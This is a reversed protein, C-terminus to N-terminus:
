WLGNYWEYVNKVIDRKPKEPTHVIKSTFTNLTNRKVFWLVFFVVILILLVIIIEVM